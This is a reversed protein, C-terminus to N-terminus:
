HTGFTPMGQAANLWHVAAKTPFFPPSVLYRGHRATGSGWTHAWSLLSGSSNLQLMFLRLGNVMPPLHHVLRVQASWIRLM